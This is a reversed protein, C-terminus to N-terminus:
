LVSMIVQFKLSSFSGVVTGVCLSQPSLLIVMLIIPFLLPIVLDSVCLLEWSLNAQLCRHFTERTSLLVLVYYLNLLYENFSYISLFCIEQTVITYLESTESPSLITSLQGNKDFFFFLAFRVNHHMHAHKSLRKLWTQSKAVGHVTARWAGRDMPIRWALISSHAAM